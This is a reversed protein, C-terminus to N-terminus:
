HHLAQLVELAEELELLNHVLQQYMVQQDRRTKCHACQLAHVRTFKNYDDGTMQAQIARLEIMVSNALFQRLKELQPVSPIDRAPISTVRAHKVYASTHQRM